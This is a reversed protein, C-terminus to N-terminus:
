KKKYKEPPYQAAHDANRVYPQDDDMGITVYEGLRAKLEAPLSAGITWGGAQIYFWLRRGADYYVACGPYYRYQYKARYGHAPAHPPPGGKALLAEAATSAGTKAPASPAADAAAAGAALAAALAAAGIAKRMARITM